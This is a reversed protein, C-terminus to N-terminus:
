GVHEFLVTSVVDEGFAVGVIDEGVALDAAFQSSHDARAPVTTRKSPAYPMVGRRSVATLRASLTGSAMPLSAAM